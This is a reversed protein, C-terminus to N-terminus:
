LNFWYMVNISLRSVVDQSAIAGFTWTGRWTTSQGMTLTGSCAPCPLFQYQVISWRTYCAPTLTGYLHCGTRNDSDPFSCPKGPNFNWIFCWRGPKGPDTGDQNTVCPYSLNLMRPHSLMQVVRGRPWVQIKLPDRLWYKLNMSLPKNDWSTLGPSHGFQASGWFQLQCLSMKLLNWQM